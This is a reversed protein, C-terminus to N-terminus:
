PGIDPSGDPQAFPSPPIDNRDQRVPCLAVEAGAQYLDRGQEMFKLDLSLLIHRYVVDWRYPYIFHYPIAFHCM